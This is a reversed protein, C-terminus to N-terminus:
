ASAKTYNKLGLTSPSRNLLTNRVVSLSLPLCTLYLPHLPAHLGAVALAQYSRCPGKPACLISISQHFVIPRPLECHSSSRRTTDSHPHLPRSPRKSAPTSTNILVPDPVNLPLSLLSRLRIHPSRRPRTQFSSAFPQVTQFQQDDSAETVM